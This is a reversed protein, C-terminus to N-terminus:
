TNARDDFLKITKVYRIDYQQRTTDIVEDPVAEGDYYNGDMQCLVVKDHRRRLPEEKLAEMLTSYDDNPRGILPVSPTCCKRGLYLPYVPDYLADCIHDILDDPGAVAALFSADCLYYRYSDITDGGTTRKKGEANLLGPVTITQYDMMSIGTRDARVALHLARSMEAIRPSGRQLGMAAAFMGILASKTPFPLTTREKWKCSGGWSQLAGELPLTMVAM